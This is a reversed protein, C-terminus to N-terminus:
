NVNYVRTVRAGQDAFVDAWLQALATNQIHALGPRTLMWLEMDVGRLDAKSNLYTDSHKLGDANPVGKYFNLGETNQLLDSVLVLKRPKGQADPRQLKTLAVSQVSQLVPSTEAGTEQALSIFAADLPKSFKEQWRKRAAAPNANGQSLESGDGPNCLDLVPQLLQDSTPAVKYLTLRGYKPLSNRVLELQNILDQKQPVTLPDTLDVLVVTQTDEGAVPCLSADLSRQGSLQVWLQWGVLGVILASVALLM